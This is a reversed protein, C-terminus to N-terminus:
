LILAVGSRSTLQYFLRHTSCAVNLPPKPYDGKFKKPSKGAYNNLKMTLLLSTM